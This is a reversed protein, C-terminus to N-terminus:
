NTGDRAPLDSRRFELTCPVPFATSELWRRELLTRATHDFSVLWPRISSHRGDQKVNRRTEQSQDVVTPASSWRAEAKAVKAEAERNENRRSTNESDLNNSAQQGRLRKLRQSNCTSNLIIERFVGNKYFTQRVFRMKRISRRQVTDNSNHSRDRSQD